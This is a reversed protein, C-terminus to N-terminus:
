YWYCVEFFFKAKHFYAELNPKIEISKEFSQNSENNRCLARLSIGRNLYFKYYNPNLKIARDYHQIAEEDRKLQNLLVGM